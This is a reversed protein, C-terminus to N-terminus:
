EGQKVFTTCLLVQEGLQGHNTGWTFVENDTWCASATKCAAVGRAVEKKLPGLVKRPSAQIPEESKGFSFGGNGNASPPEIVYGLQSFHNLGWSLVEGSKTLALTHDQGLSVSVITYPLQSIPTLSYQTHQGPGLRIHRFCVKRSFVSYYESPMLVYVKRWVWIWLRAFERQKRLHCDSFARRFITYSLRFPVSASVPTFNPCRCKGSKSPLFGPRLPDRKSVPTMRRLSYLSRTLIHETTGM